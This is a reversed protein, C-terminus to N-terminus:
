PNMHATALTNSEELARIRLLESGQFHKAKLERIQSAYTEPDAEESLAELEVQYVAVRSRWREREADLARLRGTAEAGFRAERLQEIEADRAGESRLVDEDQRLQRHSRAADRTAQLVPSRDADLAALRRAREDPDLRDDALIRQRELDEFWQTEQEGFLAAAVESGFIERRLERILQLRRELGEGRLRSSVLEAARERYMLYIELLAEADAAAPGALRARIELVIRERLRADSEEGQASLFYDFLDIADATPRFRGESDVVLAGDPETGALSAPRESVAAGRPPRIGSSPDRGASLESWGRGVTQADSAADIGPLADLGSWLAVGILGVLGGGLIWAAIRRNM